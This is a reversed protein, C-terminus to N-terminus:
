APPKTAWDPDVGELWRTEFRGAGHIAILRLEGDGSNVFGHAEGSGAVVVHGAGVVVTEDGVRFTAEGAEVVFVEPYPHTHVRPGVGPQSHVLILSFPADEALEAGEVEHAHVTHELSDFPIVRRM